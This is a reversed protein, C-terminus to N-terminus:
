GQSESQSVPLTIIFESGRGPESLFRIEGGHAEIIQRTIALGLGTGSSKTSFKPLFIKGKDSDSIGSGNDRVHVSVATKKPILEVRIESADKDLSEVANKLINNLARRLEKEAGEIMVEKQPLIEKFTIGEHHSFLATTTHIMETLSFLLFPERVPRAFSSFDSAIKSLSEIQDIIGAATKEILPKLEMVRDPRAELQRQLHQLSLKMPTLPNKIEHAVQQAMEKWAAEREAKVLEQQTADLKQVMENYAEALSGIEDNGSVVVRAKLDGGSIKNLGSQIAKLPRTLQDSLFLTGAIFLLFMILYMVFLTTTTSLLQEEYVPSKIFTPIAIAGAPEGSPGLLLRYGILMERNGIVKRDLYFSRELYFLQRYVHYPMLSPILFHYFIQPTTSSVQEAGRFLILDANLPTTIEGLIEDKSVTESFIGRERLIDAAVSLNGILEREVNRENQVEITFQTAYILVTLFLITAMILVDVLRHRFRNNNGFPVFGPFGLYALLTFAFLSFFILVIQLRFYSFLHHSIGPYPTSAIAVQREDSNVLVERFRGSETHNTIFLISDISAAEAKQAPLRNFQPQNHYLGKLASRALRNGTYESLYISQRWGADEVSHLMARLPRQYDIRELYIEGAIWAIIRSRYQPDYIPIWGRDLSIYRESLNAPRGWIIPRNNEFRLQEAQHSSRMLYTNYFSSWVPRELSTSFSALEADEPTLLRFHYSYGRRNVEILDSVTRQFQRILFPNENEVDERSFYNLSSELSQLMDFLIESSSYPTESSFETIEQLLERDVRQMTASYIFLYIISSASVALLTLKRFGSHGKLWWWYKKFHVSLMVFLLFLSSYLLLTQLTFRLENIFQGSIFAVVIFSLSSFLIFVAGNQSEDSNLYSGTLLLIGFSSILMVFSSLYFLFSLPDPSIDLYLLPITSHILVGELSQSLFHILGFSLLGFLLSSGLYVPLSFEKKERKSSLVIQLTTIFTLLIFLANALFLSIQHNSYSPYFTGQDMNQGLFLQDAGVLLFFLWAALLIVLRISHYGPSASLQARSIGFGSYLYVLVLLLSYFFIRYLSYLSRTSSIDADESFYVTGVRGSGPLELTRFESLDPDPEFFRFLINPDGRWAPHGTLNFELVELFPIDISQQLRYATLLTFQEEGAYFKQYRLLLIVNNVTTVTVVPDFDRQILIRPLNLENGQWFWRSSNRFLTLGWLDRASTSEIFAPLDDSRFNPNTIEAVIEESTTNLSNYLENFFQVAKELAESQSFGTQQGTPTRDPSQVELLFIVLLITAALLPYLYKSRLRM